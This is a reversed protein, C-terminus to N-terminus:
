AVVSIAQQASRGGGPEPNVVAIQLTGPKAIDTPDLTAVVREPSVFRLRDGRLQGDVQLTSAGTFGRGEIEVMPNATGVKIEQPTARTIVPVASTLKGGRQEDGRSRFLTDFVERLKDAAQKSFMGILGGTAIFGYPNSAGETGLFGARLIFYFLLALVMAIPTRVIFWWGWRSDLRGNGAFTAFSTAVHVFSGLGGALAMLLSLAVAPTLPVARDLVYISCTASADASGRTAISALAQDCSYWVCVFALFLLVFLLLLYIGLLWRTFWSAGAPRAPQATGMSATEDTAM